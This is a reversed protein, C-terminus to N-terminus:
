KYIPRLFRAHTATCVRRRTCERWPLPRVGFLAEMAMEGVGKTPGDVCKTGDEGRGGRRRARHENSRLAQSEVVLYSSTVVRCACATPRARCACTGGGVANCPSHTCGSASTTPKLHSGGRRAIAAECVWGACSLATAVEVDDRAHTTPHRSPRSSTRELLFRGHLLGYEGSRGRKRARAAGGASGWQM